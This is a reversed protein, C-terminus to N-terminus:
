VTKKKVINGFSIDKSNEFGIMIAEFSNDFKEQM